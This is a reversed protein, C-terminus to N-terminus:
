PSPCRDPVITLSGLRVDIAVTPETIRGNQDSCLARVIYAGTFVTTLYGGRSEDIFIMPDADRTQVVGGSADLIWGATTPMRVVGLGHLGAVRLDEAPLLYSFAFASLLVCAVIWARGILRSRRGSTAGLVLTLVVAIAPWVVLPWASWLQFSATSYTSVLMMDESPRMDFTTVAVGALEAVAVGVVLLPQLRMASLRRAGAISAIAWAGVALNIGVTVDDTLGQMEGPSRGLESGFYLVLKVVVVVGALAAQALLFIRALAVVWAALTRHAPTGAAPLAPDLAAM